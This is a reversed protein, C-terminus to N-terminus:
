HLTAAQQLQKAPKRKQLRPKHQTIPSLNLQKLKIPDQCTHIDVLREVRSLSLSSSSFCALEWSWCWSITSHIAAWWSTTRFHCNSWNKQCKCRCVLTHLNKFQCPPPPQSRTWKNTKSPWLRSISSITSCQPRLQLRLTTSMDQKDWPTSSKCSSQITYFGKM